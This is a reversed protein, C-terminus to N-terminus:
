LGDRRRYPIYELVAPVPQQDSSVPRWIRAALRAGDPMPIWVTPTDSIEHPFEEVVQLGPPELGPFM